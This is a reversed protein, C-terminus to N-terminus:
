MTKRLHLVEQISDGRSVESYPASAVGARAALKFKESKPRASEGLQKGKHRVDLLRKLADSGEWELLNKATPFGPVV